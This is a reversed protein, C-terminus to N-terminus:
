RWRGVRIGLSTLTEAINASLAAGLILLATRLESRSVIELVNNINAVLLAATAGIVALVYTAFRDLPESSKSISWAASQVFKLEAARSQAALQADVQSAQTSNREDDTMFRLTAFSWAEALSM